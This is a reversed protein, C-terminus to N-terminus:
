YVGNNMLAANRQPISDFNFVSDRAYPAYSPVENFQGPLGGSEVLLVSFRGSEALRRAVAGGGAGAGVEFFHLMINNNISKIVLKKIWKGVIFDYNPLCTVFTTWCQTIIGILFLKTYWHAM